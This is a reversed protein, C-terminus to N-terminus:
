QKTAWAIRKTEMNNGENSVHIRVFRVRAGIRITQDIM